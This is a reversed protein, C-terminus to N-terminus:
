VLLMIKFVFEDSKDEYTVFGNYKEAIKKVSKTGLGHYGKDKKTSNLDPNNEMVSQSITNKVVILLYSGAEKVELYIEKRGQVQECAEIANDLVNGLLSVMDDDEMSNDLSCTINYVISIGKDAAEGFKTNVVADFAFRDTNILKQMSNIKDIMNDAYSMGEEYSKAFLEKLYVIQNKMDHRITRIEENLANTRTVYELQLTNKQKLLRNETHIIYEKELMSILVYFVINIIIMGIFSLLLYFTNRDNFEISFSVETIIVMVAITTLPVAAVSAVTIPRINSIGEIKFKLLIRTVVYLIIKSIILCSLRYISFENFLEEVRVDFSMSFILSTLFNVGVIVLIITVCSFFRYPIKGKLAIMCYIFLIGLSLYAMIDPVNRLYNFVEANILLLLFACIAVIHQKRGQYKAENMSIVYEVAIFSEFANILFEITHIFLENM